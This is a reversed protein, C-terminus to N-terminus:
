REVAELRTLGPTLECLTGDRVVALWIAARQAPEGDAGSWDVGVFQSVEDSM